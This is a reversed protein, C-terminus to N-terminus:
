LSFRRKQKSVRRFSIRADDTARKIADFIKDVEAEEFAYNQSSLNSLKRLAELVSETRPPALRRFNAHRDGIAAISRSTRKKSQASQVDPDQM